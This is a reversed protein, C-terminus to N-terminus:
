VFRSFIARTWHLGLELAARAPLHELLLRRQRAVDDVLVGRGVAANAVQAALGERM